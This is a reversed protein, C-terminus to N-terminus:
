KNIRYKKIEVAEVYDQKLITLRQYHNTLTHLKQAQANTWIEMLCLDDDSDTPIYYDYKYNGPEEKSLQIIGQENVKNYFEGRKGKKIHYRVTVLLLSNMKVIADNYNLAKIVTFYKGFEKTWMDMEEEIDNVENMIFCVIKCTTQAMGPLLVSFGWEADEAADEFGNRADVILKSGEFEKLLEWAFTAPRRYDEGSAFKKWTLFVVKDKELYKVNCFETDFEKM